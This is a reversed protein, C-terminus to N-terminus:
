FCTMEFVQELIFFFLSLVALSEAYTRLSVGLNCGLNWEIGGLSPSVIGTSLRPGNKQIVRYIDFRCEFGTKLVKGSQDRDLHRWARRHDSEQKRFRKSKKRFRKIEKSVTQDVNSVMPDRKFKESVMCANLFRAHRSDFGRRKTGIVTALHRAYRM